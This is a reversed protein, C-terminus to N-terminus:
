LPWSHMLFKASCSVASISRWTNAGKPARCPRAPGPLVEHFLLLVFAWNHHAHSLSPTPTQPFSRPATVHPVCKATTQKPRPASVDTRRM